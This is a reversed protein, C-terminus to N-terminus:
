MKVIPIQKGLHFQIQEWVTNKGASESEIYEVCASCMSVDCKEVPALPQSADKCSLLILM